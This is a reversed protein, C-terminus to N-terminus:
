TSMQRPAVPQCRDCNREARLEAFGGASITLSYNGPSVLKFTYVGTNDTKETQSYNTGTNTLTVAAGPVAAGSPDTVQGTLSGSTGQAFAASASSLLGVVNVLLLARLRITRILQM